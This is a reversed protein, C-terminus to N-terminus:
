RYIKDNDTLSHFGMKKLFNNCEHVTYTYGTDIIFKYAKEKRTNNLRIGALEILHYTQFPYLHMAICVAIVKELNPRYSNNEMRGITKVSIGTLNSLEEQSINKETRYRKMEEGFDDNSNNNVGNPGIIKDFDSPSIDHFAKFYNAHILKVSSFPVGLQNSIRHCVVYPNHNYDNSYISHYKKTDIKICACIDKPNLKPHAELFNEFSLGSMLILYGFPKLILRGQVYVYMGSNVFKRFRYSKEYIPFVSLNEFVIQMKPGFFSPRQYWSINSLSKKSSERRIVYKHSSNKNQFLDIYPNPRHIAPSFKKVRPKKRNNPRYKKM